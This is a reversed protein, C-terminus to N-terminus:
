DASAEDPSFLWDRPQHHFRVLLQLAEDFYWEDKKEDDKYIVERHDRKGVLRYHPQKGQDELRREQADEDKEFEPFTEKSLDIYGVRPQQELDQRTQAIDDIWKTLTFQEEESAMRLQEPAAKVIYGRYNLWVTSPPSTLVVRAPGRWYEPSDRKAGEMGKRWFYVTQGVEYDQLRRPGAHLTNKIAQQCDAEHFARAAALRMENAKQLQLDGGRLSRSSFDNYGGTMVGGPIRPSYGLVRQIPSFGSKNVLRNCTMNAIDLLLEWEEETQCTYQMLTRSFVEKFNKGARETIGRQSPMELSSPEFITADHEAGLEFAGLFERGLDVYVRTPPGFFKTWQNYAKRAEGPTHRRLPLIMQFRSSWDVINLAMRKKGDITPIYVTDVGVIENVHLQKPPAGRRAPHVTGHQQCVSCKLNKAFRIAEDSAKANKLIRALRDNGPHGLGEHARRVLQEVSFPRERPLLGRSVQDPGPLEAPVSVQDPQCEQSDGYEQYPGPVGTEEVTAENDLAEPEENAYIEKIEHLPIIEGVAQQRLQSQQWEQYLMEVTLLQVEEDRLLQKRYGRLIADVLKPPYEQAQRARNGGKNNGLILEHQHSGDCRLSLQQAIEPSNTLFGTPKKHLNGDLSRLGFRCQDAAVLIVEDRDMLQQIENELWTRATLPNEFVFCGGYSIVLQMVKWAFRLLRKAHRLRQLYQRTHKNVNMNQLLSFLTCPPSVIVLGPKVKSLYRMVEDQFPQKLLDHGLTLDFAEGPILNHHAARKGFRQPNYVEAVTRMHHPERDLLKGYKQMAKRNTVRFQQESSAAETWFDQWGQEECQSPATCVLSMLEEWVEEATRLATKAQSVVRNLQKTKRRSVPKSLHRFEQETLGLRQESEPGIWSREALTSVGPVGRVGRHGPRDDEQRGEEEQERVREGVEDCARDGPDQRLRLVDGTTSSWQDREEPDSHPQLYTGEDHFKGNVYERSEETGIFETVGTTSDLSRGDPCQGGGAALTTPVADMRFVSMPETSGDPMALLHTGPQSGTQPDRVSQHESRSSMSSTTGDDHHGRGHHLEQGRLVSQPGAIVSGTTPESTLIGTIPERGDRQGTSLKGCEGRRDPFGGSDQAPAVSLLSGEEAQPDALQHGTVDGPDLDHGAEAGNSALRGDARAGRQPEATCAQDTGPEGHSSEAPTDSCDPGQSTLGPVGSGLPSTPEDMTTKLVEFEQSSSILQDQAAKVCELNEPTFQSLPVRLAGTPGIHCNVTFGFKRFHIRLGKSPDLHLVAQCHILFPLSILFPATRSEGHEFVAPRLLSGRNGLSTPIVAVYKTTSTGHVSRFRHEQPVMHTQLGPPLSENMRKLTDIGIAMRQCGTDVTACLEEKPIEPNSKRNSIDQNWYIEHENRRVAHKGSGFCFGSDGVFGDIRRGKYAQEFNSQEFGHDTNVSDEVTAAPGFHGSFQEAPSETSRTGTLDGGHDLLGCFIAEESELLNVEKTKVTAAGNGKNMPCEPDRHWHGIQQCKACRSKSKAESLSMRYFGGKVYGSTSMSSQSRSGSAGGNRWQGYGRALNKAKKTRLSQMFTKKKQTLMTSLVEKAEHEEMVDDEDPVYSEVTEEDGDGPHLERWLEEMAAIEDEDPEEDENQLSMVASTRSTLPTKSREVGVDKALLKMEHKRCWGKVDRVLISGQTFALMAKIDNESINLANILLFGLYKEPLTVNHEQIKRVADDFKNFFSRCGEDKQRRLHYTLKALSALLEEERDEGFLEPTDMVDLLKKGNRDDSLWSQDRAYHKLSQFPQGSLRQLIM